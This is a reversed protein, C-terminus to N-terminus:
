VMTCESNGGGINERWGFLPERKGVREKKLLIRSSILVFFLCFVNCRTEGALQTLERLGYRFKRHHPTSHFSCCNAVSFVLGEFIAFFPMFSACFRGGMTVPGSRQPHAVSGLLFYVSFFIFLIKQTRLFQLLQHYHAPLWVSSSGGSNMTRGCYNDSLSSIAAWNSLCQWKNSHHWAEKHRASAATM